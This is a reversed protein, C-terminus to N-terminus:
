RFQEKDFISITDNNEKKIKNAATSPLDITSSSITNNNALVHSALRAEAIKFKEHEKEIGIFKRKLNLAAIGTTGSGMLPDLVLQNEITLKNIIHEAEVTSQEWPHLPKEPPKSEVYDYLYDNLATIPYSTSLKEGKVFWL